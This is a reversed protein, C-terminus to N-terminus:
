VSIPRIIDETAALVVNLAKLTWHKNNYKNIIIILDHFFFPENGEEMEM